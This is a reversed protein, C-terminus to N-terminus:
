RLTRIGDSVAFTRVRDRGSSGQFRTAARNITQQKALGSGISDVAINLLLRCIVASSPALSPVLIKCRLPGRSMSVVKSNWLTTRASLEGTSMTSKPPTGYISEAPRPAITPSVHASLLRLAANRQGPNFSRSRANTSSFRRLLIRAVYVLM